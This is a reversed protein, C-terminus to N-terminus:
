ASRTYLVRFTKDGAPFSFASNYASYYLVTLTSDSILFQLNHAAPHVNKIVSVGVPKYGSLAISINEQGAYAGAATANFSIAQSDFDKYVMTKELKSSAM